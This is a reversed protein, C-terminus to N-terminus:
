TERGNELARLVTLKGILLSTIMFLYYSCSCEVFWRNIGQRM